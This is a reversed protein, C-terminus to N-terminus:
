LLDKLIFACGFCSEDHCCGFCSAGLGFDYISLVGLLRCGLCSEDHRCGVRMMVAGSAVQM